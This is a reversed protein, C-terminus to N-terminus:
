SLFQRIIYLISQNLCAAAGLFSYDYPLYLVHFAFSKLHRGVFGADMYSTLNAKHLSFALACIIGSHFVYIM